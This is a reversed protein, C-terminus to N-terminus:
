NVGVLNSPWFHSRFPAACLCPWHPSPRSHLDVPLPLIQWHTHSSIMHPESPTVYLYTTYKILMQWSHKHIKNVDALFTFITTKWLTKILLVSHLHMALSMGHPSSVFHHHHHHHTNKNNWYINRPKQLTKSNGEAWPSAYSM